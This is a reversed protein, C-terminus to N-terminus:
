KLQKTKKCKPRERIGFHLLANKSKEASYEHVDRLHRPLNKVRSQCGFEVCAISRRSKFKKLLNRRKDKSSLGENESESDSAIIRRIRKYKTM